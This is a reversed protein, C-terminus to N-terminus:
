YPREFHNTPAQDSAKRYSAAASDFDRSMADKGFLRMVLAMPLIVLFFALALVLRTNIIGMFHGFGMWLRYPNSLLMPRVLAVLVAIAGIAWPWRVFSLEGSVLWPMVVGFLLVLVSGFLIGFRRLEGVGIQQEPMM